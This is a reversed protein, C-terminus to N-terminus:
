QTAFNRNLENQMIANAAITETFIALLVNILPLNDDASVGGGRRKEEEIIDKTTVYAWYIAYIGCTIITFLVALGPSRYNADKKIEAVDRTIQYIWVLNAIGCTVIALVIWLAINKKGLV